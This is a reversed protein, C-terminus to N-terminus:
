ENNDEVEVLDENIGSNNLAARMINGGLKPNAAMAAQLERQRYERAVAKPQVEILVLGKLVVADVNGAAKDGFIEAVSYAANVDELLEDVSVARYDGSRIGQYLADSRGVDIRLGNKRDFVKWVYKCDSRPEKMMKEPETFDSRPYLAEPRLDAGVLDEIDINKGGSIAVQGLSKRRSKSIVRESNTLEQAIDAPLGKSTKAM